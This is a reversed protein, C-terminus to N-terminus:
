ASHLAQWCLREPSAEGLETLIDDFTLWVQWPDSAGLNNAHTVAFRSLNESWGSGALLDGGALEHEHGLESLERPHVTKGIDHNAAGLHVVKQDIGFVPWVAVVLSSSITRGPAAPSPADSARQNM